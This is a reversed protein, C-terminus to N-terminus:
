ESTAESNPPNIASFWCIDVRQDRAANGALEEFAASDPDLAPPRRRSNANDLQTPASDFDAVDVVRPDPLCLM